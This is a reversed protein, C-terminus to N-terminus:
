LGAAEFFGFDAATLATSECADIDADLRGATSTERVWGLLLLSNFGSLPRKGGVM